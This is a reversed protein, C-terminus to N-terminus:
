EEGMQFDFEVILYGYGELNERFENENAPIVRIFHTPDSVWVTDPRDAALFSETDTLGFVDTSGTPDQISVNKMYLRVIYDVYPLQEIYNILLSAHLNGGIPIDAGEDFAWPSLYRQIARELELGYFGENFGPRFKAVVRLRVRQFHPNRVQIRAWTPAYPQLFHEIESLTNSPVKPEFPDFPLKGRINPIVVLQLAGRTELQALSPGDAQDSHAPLCKVKYVEPFQELVLREYDWSSLARQKHRLRESVRTYFASEKERPRGGFSSYPQLVKAVGALPKRLGKVQEAALPQDLHDPANGQDVFVTRIAQPHIEILDGVGDPHADISAKIWHMGAPMRTHHTTAEEPIAIRLLGPRRLNNTSDEIIRNSQDLRVWDEGCLISWFVQRRPVDPNASGEAIQFLLSLEQPPQLDQIAVYLEGALNGSESQIAAPYSPLLYPFGSESLTNQYGFPRLYFLCDWESGRKLDFSVSAKYDISLSNLVPNYPPNLTQALSPHQLTVIFSESPASAFSISGESPNYSDITLNSGSETTALLHHERDHIFEPPKPRLKHPGTSGGSFKQRFSLVQQAIRAQKNLLSPYRSHFFDQQGLSLQLYRQSEVVQDAEEVTPLAEYQYSKGIHKQQIIGSFDNIIIRGDDPFLSQNAAVTTKTRGDVLRVSGRIEVASLDTILSSYGQYHASIGGDPLDQWDLHLSLQKLQKASLEPHFISLNAGSRPRPGFPEFPNLPDLQAQDHQIQLHKLGNVDVHLNAETIRLKSLQKYAPMDLNQVTQEALSMYLFPMDLRLDTESRLEEGLAVVAPDDSHLSLTYSLTSGSVSSSSVEEVLWLGEATSLQFDFVEDFSLETISQDFTLSLTITREGETLLLVSSAFALGMRAFAVAEWNGDHQAEGFTRWRSSGEEFPQNVIVISADNAAWAYQRIEESAEGEVSQIHLSSVAGIKAQNILVPHDSQYYMDKGQSDKGALFQVGKAIPFEKVHKAPQILVHLYDPQAVKATLGLYQRYYFDLHRKTLGNLKERYPRLMKLFALFLAFHPRTFQRLKEPQQALQEPDELYSLIDELEGQVFGEWSSTEGDLEVFPLQKAYQDVFRIWDVHGRQDVPASEPRLAMPMRDFQSTGDRFQSQKPDETM